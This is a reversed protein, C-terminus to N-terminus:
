DDRIKPALIVQVHSFDNGLGYRILLPLKDCMYLQVTQRDMSKLVLNLYTTSYIENYREVLREPEYEVAAGEGDAMGDVTPIARLTYSVGEEGTNQEAAPVVSTRSLHTKTFSSGDSKAGVSFFLHSAGRQADKEDPEELKFVMHTCDLDQAMKCYSKLRGLDMEVMYSYTIAQMRYRNVNADEDMLALTCTSRISGDERSFAVMTLDGSDSYRTLTLIHTPQVDKLLTNFTATIVCFSENTLEAASEVECEYSAKIMCSMTSDISDVRLGTFGQSKVLQFPCQTLVRYVIMLFTKFTQPTSITVRWDFPRPKNRKRAPPDM